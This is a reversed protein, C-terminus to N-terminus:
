RLCRESLLGSRGETRESGAAKEDPAAGAGSPHLDGADVAAQGAAVIGHAKDRHRRRQSAIGIRGVRTAGDAEEVAAPQRQEMQVQRGTDGHPWRLQPRAHLDKVVEYPPPAEGLEGAAQMEPASDLTQSPRVERLVESRRDLGGLGRLGVRGGKDLPRLRHGKSLAEEVPELDKGVPSPKQGAAVESHGKIHEDRHLLPEGDRSQRRLAASM